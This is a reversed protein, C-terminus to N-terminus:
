VQEPDIGLERLKAALKEARREAANRGAAIEAPSLFPRGDPGRVTLEGKAVGFRTGLRPSVWNAFDEVQVLQDGERRWVDIHAPFEPYLIYYEEAGYKEYFRLKDMMKSMRNNPSWVEFIVQPFVGGEDWVKYGGRDGKPRGFAVYVDPAQRTDADDKVPYVLNNGAVFVDPRGAFQVELNWMVISIWAFQVTNDSMPEGDDDPYHVVVPGPTTPTLVPM